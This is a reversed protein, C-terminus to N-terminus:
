TVQRNDAMAGLLVPPRVFEIVFVKLICYLIGKHLLANQVLLIVKKLTEQLIEKGMYSSQCPM